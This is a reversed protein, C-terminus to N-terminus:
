FEELSEYLPVGMERLRPYFKASQPYPDIMGVIEYDPNENALLHELYISAYGGIGVSLIKVKEM